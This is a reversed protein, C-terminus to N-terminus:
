GKNIRYKIELAQSPITASYVYFQGNDAYVYSSVGANLASNYSSFNPSYGIEVDVVDGVACTADSIAISFSAGSIATNGFWSAVPLSITKWGTDQSLKRWATWTGGIKNRYWVGATGSLDTVRQM